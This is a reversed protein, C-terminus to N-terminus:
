SINILGMKKRIRSLAVPTIGVYSAIIHQKIRKELGPYRELFIKYRTEADYLLLERERAVKLCYGSELLKIILKNWCNHKNILKQWQGYQIVAVTSNELAEISYYAERNQILASFEALAFNKLIFGKTFEEGNKHNFYFYRFLGNIVFGLSHPREGEQIFYDGKQIQKFSTVKYFEELQSEPIFSINNLISGLKEKM